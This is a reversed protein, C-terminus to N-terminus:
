HWGTPARVTVRFETQVMEMGPRTLTAMIALKMTRRKRLLRTAQPSLRVSAPSAAGAAIRLRTVGASTLKPKARAAAGRLESRVTLTCTGGPPCWATRGTRVVPRPSVFLAGTPGTLRFRPRASPPPLPRPLNVFLRPPAPPRPKVTAAVIPATPVSWLEDSGVPTDLRYWVRLTMGIDTRSPVYTPGSSIQTCGVGTKDCRRWSITADGGRGHNIPPRSVALTAGVVADGAITFPGELDPATIECDNGLVFLDESDFEIADRGDGCTLDTDEQFPEDLALLIDDGAGGDLEDAGREDRLLDNGEGGLLLDDGGGGYLEDNGAGGNVVIPLFTLRANFVDNEAGFVATLGAFDNFAGCDLFLTEYPHPVCGSTGADLGREDRVLLRDAYTEVIVYHDQADDADISLTKHPAVGDVALTTTAQATAPAALALAALAMVARLSSM